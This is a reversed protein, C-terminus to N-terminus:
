STGYACIMTMQHASIAPVSWPWHRRILRSDDCTRDNRDLLSFPPTKRLIRVTDEASLRMCLTVCNEWAQAPTPGKSTATEVQLAALREALFQATKCRPCPIDVGHESEPDFLQGDVCLLDPYGPGFFSFEYGCM